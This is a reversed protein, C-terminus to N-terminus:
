KEINSKSPHTTTGSIKGSLILRERVRKQWKSQPEDADDLKGLLEQMSEGGAQRTKFYLLATIVSTVSALVIIIPFLILQSVTAMVAGFTKTKAKIDEDSKDKIGAENGAEIMEEGITIKVEDDDNKDDKSEPQPKVGEKKMVKVENQLKSVRLSQVYTANALSIFITVTMGLCLPIIYVLLLTALVTRFSRKTLEMSRKFAVKGSVGEMMISPSILMFKASLWIGPLICFVYGVTSIFSSLGVTTILSKARKRAVNFASRLSLPRLPYALYQAVVWTMMGTLFASVILSAFFYLVEFGITTTTNTTSEELYGFGVALGFGTKIVTFAILPLFTLFTLLVFKPLNESYIVLSRRLLVGIGESNARVKSAFAEATEPREETKKSLSQMVIAKLKKPVQKAALPPPEQTKHGEMVNLYDGTFPLNGSLMQYVIVALSYIDSRNTLKEGRCQEPSMYLPTGLVAGVRTLDATLPSEISSKDTLNQKSITKTSKGDEEIIAQTQNAPLIATSDESGFEKSKQSKIPQIIQTGAESKIDPNQQILTGAESNESVLTKPKEVLAMTENESIITSNKKDAITESDSEDVFTNKNHDFETNSAGAYPIEVSDAIEALQAEELKAIGFDLVKVTFGGRQNPELWINDPKLDRHIIGQKHAEEVASSVQELIDITLSVPLKKEEALVEGLTCGDLYEMVLYAADEGTETKAFGFDTVDVVNPHRLRGAAKAESRFREVFESRKMFDPAIVKVAVPRATGIHTSLYVTGMGGKGLQKDIKYKGDLIQGILGHSSM